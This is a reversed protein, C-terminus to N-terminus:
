CSNFIFIFLVIICLLLLRFRFMYVPLSRLLLHLHWCWYINKFIMRTIYDEDTISSSKATLALHRPRLNYSFDSRDPLISHLVHHKSHLILCTILIAFDLISAAVFSRQWDNVIRPRQLAGGRHHLMPSSRLLSPMSSWTFQAPQWATHGFYECPWRPAENSM